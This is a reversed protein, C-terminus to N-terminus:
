SLALFLYLYLYDIILKNPRELRSEDWPPELPTWRSASWCLFEIDVMEWVLVAAEGAAGWKWHFATGQGSPMSMSKFCAWDEIPLHGWMLWQQEQLPTWGAKVEGVDGEWTGHTKSLNWQTSRPCSVECGPHLAHDPRTRWLGYSVVLCSWCALFGLFVSNCWTACISLCWYIFHITLIFQRFGSSM